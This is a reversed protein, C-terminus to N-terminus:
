ELVEVFCATGVNPVQLFVVDRLADSPLLVSNELGSFATAFSSEEKSM